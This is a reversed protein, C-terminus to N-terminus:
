EPKQSIVEIRQWKADPIEDEIAGGWSKEV